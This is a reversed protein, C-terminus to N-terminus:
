LPPVRYLVSIALVSLLPFIGSLLEFFLFLYVVNCADDSLDLAPFDSLM